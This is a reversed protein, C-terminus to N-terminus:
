SRHRSNLDGGVTLYKFKLQLDTMLNLDHGMQETLSNCKIYVHRNDTTEVLAAAASSTLLNDIVVEKFGYYKRLLLAAGTNSDNRIINYNVNHKSKIYTESVCYFSAKM